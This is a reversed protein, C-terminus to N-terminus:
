KVSIADSSYFTLICLQLPRFFTLPNFQFGADLLKM